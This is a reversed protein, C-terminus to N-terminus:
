GVANPPDLVMIIAKVIQAHPHLIEGAGQTLPSRGHYRVLGLRSLSTGIRSGAEFGFGGPLGGAAAPEQLPAARPAARQSGPHAGSRPDPAAPARHGEFTRPPGM